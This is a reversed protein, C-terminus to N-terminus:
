VDINELNDGRYDSSGPIQSMDQSSDLNINRMEEEIRYVALQKQYDLAKQSCVDLDDLM